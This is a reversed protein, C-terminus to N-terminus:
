KDSTSPINLPRYVYERNATRRLRVEEHVKDKDDDLGRPTHKLLFESERDVLQERGWFLDDEDVDDM